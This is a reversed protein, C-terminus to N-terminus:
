DIRADAATRRKIGSGGRAEEVGLAPPFCCLGFVRNNACFMLIDVADIDRRSPCFITSSFFSFTYWCSLM